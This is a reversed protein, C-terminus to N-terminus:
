SFEELLVPWDAPGKAKQGDCRSHAVTRIRQPKKRLRIRVYRLAQAFAIFIISMFEKRRVDKRHLDGMPKGQTVPRDDPRRM